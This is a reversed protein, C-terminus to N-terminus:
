EKIVRRRILDIQKVTYGIYSKLEEIQAMCVPNSKCTNITLIAKTIFQEASEIYTKHAEVMLQARKAKKKEDKSTSHKLRQVLRYLKKISRINYESQRWMTMGLSQSIIAAIQITKRIADFLLNIDTPYHVDTEVVFSDCRGMKM